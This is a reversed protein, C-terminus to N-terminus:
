VAPSSRGLYASSCVEVSSRPRPACAARQMSQVEHDSCLRSRWSEGRPAALTGESAGMCLWVCFGAMMCDAREVHFTGGVRRQQTQAHRMTTPPRAAVSLVVGRSAQQPTCRTAQAIRGAHHCHPDCFVASVPIDRTNDFATASSNTGTLQTSVGAHNAPDHDKGARQRTRTSTM